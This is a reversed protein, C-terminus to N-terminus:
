QYIISNNKFIIGDSNYFVNNHNQRILIDDITLKGKTLLNNYLQIRLRESTEAPTYELEVLGWGECNVFKVFKFVSTQIQQQYESDNKRTELTIITRPILDKNLDNMWFSIKVAETSNFLLTDIIIESSTAQFTFCNISHDKDPSKNGFSQYIFDSTSDSVYFIDKAYLSKNEAEEKLKKRYDSPIKVLSDFPLRFVKYNDNEAIIGAYNQYNKEYDSLSDQKQVLLLFDKKSKYDKVIEFMDLPEQVLALSKISESVSTRSLLIANIPLGTKWAVTFATLESSQSSGYWYVESGINFYPLPIIAQFESINIDNIWKDKPLNNNVDYIEVVQNKLNKERNYANLYADFAGWALPFILLILSLRNKKASYWKWISYYAAINIVYFFIWAFRGEARFQKLPGMYNWLWQLKWQFPYAFSFIVAVISAWLAANIYDNEILMMWRKIRLKKLYHFTGFLIVIFPVLGIYAIGEWSLDPFNIFTGYPKGIPLFVAAPSSRNYFYGWPYNTRDTSIGISLLQFLIFPLIIQLGFYLLSHTLNHFKDKKTIWWILLMFFSLIGFFAFFYAHTLLGIFSTVGMLISHRLKNSQYFGHMQLLYLPIFFVYSLSFHGGMRDLQPSLFVILVAVLISYWHPLNLRALLLYIFLVGPVISFLMLFNLIAIINDTLDIGLKKLLILSNSILPQSDSYFVSEGYPYNMCQTYLYTTDYKVHYYSCYYSKLGDGGTSFLYSGPNHLVPFYFILLLSSAVFVSIIPYAIPKYRNLM